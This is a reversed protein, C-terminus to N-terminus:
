PLGSPTVEIASDKRSRRPRRAQRLTQYADDLLHLELPDVGDAVLREAFYDRDIHSGRQLLYAGVEADRDSDLEGVDGILTRLGRTMAALQQPDPPDQPRRARRRRIQQEIADRQTAPLEALRRSLGRRGARRPLAARIVGLLDRGHARSVVGTAVLLLPYAACALLAAAGRLLLGGPALVVVALCVLGIAVAASIRAWQFPIPDRGRRIAWLLVLACAIAGVMGAAAVGYGGLPPALVPSLAALILSSVASALVYWLRRRPFKALRYLAYAVGQGVVVAAVAPVYPAAEHYSSPAFGILLASGITLLLM